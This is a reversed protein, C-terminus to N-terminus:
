SLTRLASFGNTTAIRWAPIFARLWAEESNAFAKVADYAPGAGRRASGCDEVRGRFDPLPVCCKDRQPGGAGGPIDTDGCFVGGLYTTYGARVERPDIWACCNSSEAKLEVEGAIDTTYALCMDTNLMMEKGLTAADEGVDSRRWQTRGTSAVTEPMWGKALISVFYNNNFRRSNEADSWWGDFGSFEPRARGLSHVGMLAASQTWSLGMRNVFTTEVASCSNDPNPLNHTSWACQQATTRGYRFGTKFDIASGGPVNQRTIQMVKEAAIVLFDALSVETCHEEYANHLPVGFEGQYLCQHLGLNDPDHLDLCGDSGGVSGTFDMFDHGAVRLVCGTWDAQPCDTATCRGPLQDYLNQISAQVRDYDRSTMSVTTLVATGTSCTM